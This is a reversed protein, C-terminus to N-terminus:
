SDSSRNQWNKGSCLPGWEQHGGQVGWLPHQLDTAATAQSKIRMCPLHCTGTKLQCPKRITMLTVHTPFCKMVVKGTTSSISKRLWALIEKMPEDTVLSPKVLLLWFDRPVQRTVLSPKVLLLWFDRPVQRVLRNHDLFFERKNSRWVDLIATNTVTRTNHSYIQDVIELQRTMM